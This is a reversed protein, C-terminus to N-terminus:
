KPGQTGPTTKVLIKSATAPDGVIGLNYNDLIATLAQRATVNEWRMYIQCGRLTTDGKASAVHLGPDILVTLHAKAALDTIAKDLSDDIRLLPTAPDSGIGLLKDSAPQALANTSVIRSISTAANTIMMLGNDRLVNELLQLGNLHWRGTITPNKALSGGSDLLRPDVIYNMSWQRALNRIADDLPVGDMAILPEARNATSSTQSPALYPTALNAALLIAVRTALPRVM